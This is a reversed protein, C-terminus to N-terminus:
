RRSSAYAMAGRAKSIRIANGKITKGSLDRIASDMQDQDALTVFGFGKMPMLRIHEVNFGTFLEEVDQNTVDKTIGGVYVDHKREEMTDRRRQRGATGGGDTPIAPDAHGWWVSHVVVSEQNGYDDETPLNLLIVDGEKLPIRHQYETQFQEGLYVAFGNKTLTIRLHFTQGFQIPFRPLSEIIGWREAIKSNQIIQGGRSKRPNFHYLINRTGTSDESCLNFSCRQATTPITAAVVLTNNGDFAPGPLQIDLPKDTASNWVEKRLYSEAPLQLM